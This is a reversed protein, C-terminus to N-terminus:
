RLAASPWGRLFKFLTEEGCRAKRFLEADVAEFPRGDFILGGVLEHVDEDTLFGERGSAVIEAALKSRMDSIEMLRDEVRDAEMNLYIIKPYGEVGATLRFAMDLGRLMAVLGETRDVEGRRERITRTNAFHAYHLDCTDRGSGQALFIEQVEECVPMRETQFFIRFGDQPDYGALVQSNGFIGKVDEPMGEFTVYKMAEDVIKKEDIAVTEGAANTYAGRVLDETVFGFRGKLYDDVHTRKLETVVSFALDAIERTSLFADPVRGEAKKAGDYAASVAKEVRDIIEDGTASAGTSGLFFYVDQEESIDPRVVSRIKEPTYFIMWEP